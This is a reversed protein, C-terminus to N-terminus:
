RKFALIRKVISHKLPKSSYKRQTGRAYLFTFHRSFKWGLIKYASLFHFDVIREWCAKVWQCGPRKENWSCLFLLRSHIVFVISSIKDRPSLKNWIPRSYWSLLITKLLYDEQLESSKRVLHIFCRPSCVSNYNVDYNAWPLCRKSHVALSYRVSSPM